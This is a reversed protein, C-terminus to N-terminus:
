LRRSQDGNAFGLLAEDLGRGIAIVKFLEGMEHPMLLKGVAGAARIYEPTAHPIGALCDLIGCNLLFQGQSAYGLLELGSAHAAAIIATFDVHVTVDQLGPLYFPDPHAHHRYHCMLTGRGRQQHYFERRPFGYDILLLAGKNLRHGWEASWARAVLSIESEFGPPLSCQEGIEQAAVLLAGSAPHEKWVFHGAENVVVGREFIREDRWAVIHAPMADLLENAVVVGSFQEPLCDLWEVRSLLHPVAAAITEQQRQRLDASLDLIFYREPLAEAKELALLLDAALRGSGAGVELVVPVSAAMVQAVQRALAQGFLATMEPSTIFDGAAGFKRAGATYYGLGPAYLLQEMFRAFSLWGGAASIEDVLSQQLRQSHALAEPAPIPLNNM